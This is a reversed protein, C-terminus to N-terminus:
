NQNINSKFTNFEESNYLLLNLLLVNVRPQGLVGWQRQETMREVCAELQQRAQVELHRALAIRAIQMRAAEPSIHPDLGSGSACLMDVPVAADAPLGNERQFRTRRVAVSDRFAASSLAFNSGFGPLTNYGCASPRPHFYIAAPSGQALLQSGVIRGSSVVLSGAAQRHFFGSAVGTILLPYIGGCVLTMALLLRAAAFIPYATKTKM